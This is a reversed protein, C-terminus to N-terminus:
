VSRYYIETSPRAHGDIVKTHHKCITDISEDDSKGFGSKPYACFLIFESTSHLHNWLTELQVTAAYLGREWLIAVMEGFARIKGNRQGAHDILGSVFTNFIKEDIRDGILLTSILNHADIPIYQSTSILKNLDFGQSYLRENLAELHASTAIVVVTEDALFGSGTFGELTDLFIKENEYIQVLHECPAIEGWFVQMNSTDWETIEKHLSEM